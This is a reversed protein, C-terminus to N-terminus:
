KPRLIQDKFLQRSGVNMLLRLLELYKSDDEDMELADPDDNKFGEFSNYEPEEISDDDADPLPNFVIKGYKRKDEDDFWLEYFKKPVPCIGGKVLYSPMDKKDRLLEMYDLKNYFLVSKGRKKDIDEKVYRLPYLLKFHTKEFEEKYAQYSQSSRIDEASLQGTTLMKEIHVLLLEHEPNLEKLWAYLSPIHLKADKKREKQTKYYQAYVKSQTHKDGSSSEFELSLEVFLDAGTIDGGIENFILFGLSVWRIYEDFFSSDEGLIAHVMTRITECKVKWSAIKDEDSTGQSETDTDDDEVEKTKPKAKVKEKKVEGKPKEVTEKKNKQPKEQIVNKIEPLTQCESSFHGTIITDKANGKLMVLPRIEKPKSSNLCRIKRNSDYIGEDFFKEQFPIYSFAFDKDDKKACCWKNMQKVFKLQESKNARINSVYYRVSIKTQTEKYTKTHSTAVSIHPEIDTLKKLCQRICEEGDAEVIRCTDEDFLEKTVTDIDVDFYLKYEFDDRTLVEYVSKKKAIIELIGAETTELFPKEKKWFLEDTYYITTM